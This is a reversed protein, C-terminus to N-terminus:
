NKKYFFINEKTQVKQKKGSGKLYSLMTRLKKKKKM